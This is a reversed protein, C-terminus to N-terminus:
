KYRYEGIKKDEKLIHNILWKELFQKISFIDIQEGKKLQNLYLIIQAEFKRHLQIHYDLNPYYIKRMFKEESAFHLKVYEVMKKLVDVININNQESHEIMTIIEFLKKHEQDINFVGISYEVSWQM